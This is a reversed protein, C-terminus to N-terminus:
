YYNLEDKKDRSMLSDVSEKAKKGEYVIKYLEKVIPMEVKHKKSLKYAADTTYIGEVVMGVEKVAEEVTKGKGILIGARRNRSHMSTCTVILDGIGSLGLFTMKDAGLKDALRSIEIIGRNMLAAKTNDGYGLGDSIGSAIAIVNKLAGGIEVGKVDENTYVRFTNSTFIEQIQKAYKKNYSAAVVTTPLNKGVEEAHSPGSLVVFPNNPIIEKCVESITKLSKMEIGKSVNVVITNSNLVDKLETVLERINQSPIALVAIDCTGIVDKYSNILNVERPIKVDPLYKKNERTENINILKEKDRIWLFVEEKNQALLCALATGWSGGGLIIIRNKKM